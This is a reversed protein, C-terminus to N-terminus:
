GPPWNAVFNKAEIVRLRVVDPELLRLGSPPSEKEDIISVEHGRLDQFPKFM